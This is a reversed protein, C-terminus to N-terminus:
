SKRWIITIGGPAHGPGASYGSPKVEADSWRLGAAKVNRPLRAHRKAARLWGHIDNPHRGRALPYGHGDDSTLYGDRDPSETGYDVAHREWDSPGITIRAIIDM